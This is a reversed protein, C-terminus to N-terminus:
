KETASRVADVVKKEDFPKVIFADAGLSLAEQIIADQGVASVVFIKGHKSAGIEKLVDIGGKEPMVLDLLMVDPRKIRYLELAEVGNGAELVEVGPFAKEIIGKLITRMFQSDDATLIRM